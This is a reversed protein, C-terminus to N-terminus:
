VQHEAGSVLTLSATKPGSLEDLSEILSSRFSKISTAKPLVSGFGSQMCLHRGIKNRDTINHSTAILAPSSPTQSARRALETATIAPTDLDVIVVDFPMVQMAAWADTCNSFITAIHGRQHIETQILRQFDQDPDVVLVSLRRGGLGVADPLDAMATSARSKPTRM